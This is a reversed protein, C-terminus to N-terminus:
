YLSCKQFLQEIAQHNEGFRCSEERLHAFYKGTSEIGIPDTALWVPTKAGQAPSESGGFGLDTSLKSNVDGPHCSNVSIGRSDFREAFAVTLM